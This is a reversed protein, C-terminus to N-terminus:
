DEPSRLQQISKEAWLQYITIHNIDATFQYIIWYPFKRAFAKGKANAEVKKRRVTDNQPL